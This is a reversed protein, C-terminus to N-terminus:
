ARTSLRRRSCPLPLPCRSSSRRRARPQDLRHLRAPGARHPDRRRLRRDDVLPRHVRGGRLPPHATSPCTSATASRSSSTSSSSSSAHGPDGRQRRLRHARRGLRRPPLARDGRRRHHQGPRPRPHPHDADAAPQGAHLLDLGVCCRSCGSCATRPHAPAAGLRLAPLRPGRRALGQRLHPLRSLGEGRATLVRRSMRASRELIQWISWERPQEGELGRPRRPRGDGLLRPRPQDIAMGGVKVLAVVVGILFVEAM